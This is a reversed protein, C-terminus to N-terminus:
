RLFTISSSLRQIESPDFQFEVEGCLKSIMDMAKFHNDVSYDFLSVTIDGSPNEVSMNKVSDPLIEGAEAAVQTKKKKTKGQGTKKKGKRQSLAEAITADMDIVIEEEM